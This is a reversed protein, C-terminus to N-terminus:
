RDNMDPSVGPLALDELLSSKFIVVSTNLEDVNMLVVNHGHRQIIM